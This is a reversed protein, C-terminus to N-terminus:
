IRWARSQVMTPFASCKHILRFVKLRRIRSDCLEFCPVTEHQGTTGTQPFGFDRGHDRAGAIAASCSDWGDQWHGVKENPCVDLNMKANLWGFSVKERNSNQLRM